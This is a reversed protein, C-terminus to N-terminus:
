HLGFLLEDEDDLNVNKGVVMGLFLAVKVQDKEETDPNWIINSFVYDSLQIMDVQDEDDTDPFNETWHKIQEMYSDIDEQVHRLSKSHLYMQEKDLSNFWKTARIGLHFAKVPDKGLFEYLKETRNMIFDDRLDLVYIPNVDFIAM